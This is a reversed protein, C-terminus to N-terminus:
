VEDGLINIMEDIGEKNVHPMIVFRLGLPNVTRSINFGKKSMNTVLDDPDEHHFSAINMVPEIIKHFGLEQMREVLYFTNEMCREVIETYGKMGLHNMTAWFAPISASCRTGRITKQDKGTLYPSEISLPSEKKCFMLGLPITSMGMKHPDLVYTDINDFDFRFSSREYRSGKLFPIVFGGFAADVHLFTDGCLDAISDIPDVQGLETTGAIGVVAATDDDIKEEIVSVDVRYKEDLPIYVPELDLMDCAKQFSFHASEPILVKKKDSLNRARWLGIINGETAGGLSLVEKMDAGILSSVAEHVETELKRTGSYLGPNGLNADLFMRHVKKGIHTSETCMSGFIKNSLFDMDLEKVSHIKELIEEDTKGEHPFNM